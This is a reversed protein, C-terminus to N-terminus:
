TNPIYTQSPIKGVAELFNSELNKFDNEISDTTYFPQFVTVKKKGYDFAVPVIPVKAIKSIYYFGTKLSTVKKRTGEPSIGLRFIEKKDFITAISEVKNLGGKRDLPEGGMYRFYHGFPFRFLEKKGVWNMELGIIGRTFLGIYFDHWSTHPMVIIVCKKMSMNEAGNLKWGM